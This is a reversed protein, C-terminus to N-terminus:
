TTSLSEWALHLGYCVRLDLSARLRESAKAKETLNDLIKSDIVVNSINACNTNTLGITM